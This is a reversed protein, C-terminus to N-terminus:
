STSVLIRSVARENVNRADHLATPGFQLLGPMSLGAAKRCGGPPELCGDAVSGPPSGIWPPLHELVRDERPQDLVGDVVVLVDADCDRRNALARRHIEIEAPGTPGSERDNKHSAAGAEKTFPVWQGSRM